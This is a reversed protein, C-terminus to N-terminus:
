KTIDVYGGLVNVVLVSIRNFVDFVDFMAFIGRGM